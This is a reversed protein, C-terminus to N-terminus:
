TVRNNCVAAKATKRFITVGLVEAEKQLLKLAYAIQPSAMDPTNFAIRFTRIQAHAQYPLIFMAATAIVV